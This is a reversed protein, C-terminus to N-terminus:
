WVESAIRWADGERVVGVEASRPSVAEGARPRLVVALRREGDSAVLPQVSAVRYRAALETVHAFLADSPAGDLRYRALDGPAAAAEAAWWYDRVLADPTGPLAAEPATPAVEAPAAAARAFAPADAGRPAKLRAGDIGCRFGRAEADALARARANSGASGADVLGVACSEGSAESAVTSVVLVQRREEGDSVFWRHITAFPAGDEGIRWEVVRHGRAPDAFSEWRGPAKATGYDLSIRGDDRTVWVPHGPLGDCRLRASAGSGEAPACDDLDLRTYASTVEALAAAPAAASLAIAVIVTMSRRM